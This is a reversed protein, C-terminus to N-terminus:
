AETRVHLMVDVIITGVVRPQQLVVHSIGRAEGLPCEAFIASYIVHGPSVATLILLFIGAMM